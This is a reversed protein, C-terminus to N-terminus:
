PPGLNNYIILFLFSDVVRVGHLRSATDSTPHEQSVVYGQTELSFALSLDKIQLIFFVFSSSVVFEM